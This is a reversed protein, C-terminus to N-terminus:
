RSALFKGQRTAEENHQEYHRQKVIHGVVYKADHWVGWIFSSGRCSLFPLGLFYVGPEKGIGRHHAPKGQEDFTDVDLWGFDLRYGTAWIITRVDAHAVDLERLPKRMCEPDPLFERAAPEEPFDLGNAAVYADAADLMSLYTADGARIVDALDPSFILKGDRYGETLGVLKVGDAALKRFDVTEGGRVGSVALAVHSTTASAPEDWMGLVGLWWDYDRGRYFRPPRDHDSVSLYVERGSRRLEDAIQVGSSGSGVVLVAGAPLGEPNLYQSSHIQEVGADAPPAVPPVFPKQFPGTAAVVRRAHIVGATTDVVFGYQGARRRVRLVEVGTRVPSHIREAYAAFYDAIQEKPVFGDPDHGDFELGPFRDHWAPGNAVLSDWRWSRWREAIRGRELVIHPVGAAGLHESAAIGAQGGGVVLTDTEEIAMKGAKKRVFKTIRTCGVCVDICVTPM